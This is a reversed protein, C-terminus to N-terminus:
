AVQQQLQQLLRTATAWLETSGDRGDIYRNPFQLIKPDIRIAPGGLVARSAEVMCHAMANVVDAIATSAAEVAIADHIPACIPINRDVAMVCALRLMDAGASQMPYNALTGSRANRLVKMKWGFASTLEGQAIGADQVAASWRWFRPFTERHSRLLARAALESVGVYEGLTKAGMGYLIGLSARKFVARIHPHTYKDGNAPMYGAKRAWDSYPDGSEYAAIMNRDGSFRAAIGFEQGGFDLVAFARGQEPKILSRFAANLGFVFASNSPQNRSTKSRYASLMCRNRADDGVALEFTKLQDLTMKSHCFEAAQPCRQAIARLTEADTCLQGTPTRPWYRIGNNAAWQELLRKKFVAGEFFPYRTNLDTILSARLDQWRTTFGIAMPHDIPIGRHRMWAEAKAYNGRLLTQGWNTITLMPLLRELGDTDTRCYDLIGAREEASWPPGRLVVDRWHEKAQASISDLKFYDLADLLGAHPQQEASCNTLCRFEAYTDLINSPLDWGLALHCCM